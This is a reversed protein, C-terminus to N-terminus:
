GPRRAGRGGGLLDLGRLRDGAAEGAARHRVAGERRLRVLGDGSGEVAETRARVGALATLIRRPDPGLPVRPDLLHRGGPEAHRRLVEREGVLELDLDR